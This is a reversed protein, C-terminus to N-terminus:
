AKGFFNSKLLHIVEGNELFMEQKVFTNDTCLLATKRYVYRVKNPV